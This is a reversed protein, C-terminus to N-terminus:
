GLTQAVLQACNADTAAKNRGGIARGVAKFINGVSRTGEPVIIDPERINGRLLVSGPLQLANKSKAAGTLSITFAEAPFGIHGTGRTQSISTDVLLLDVDGRGRKLALRIIGCRLEERGDKNAFLVKGVDFGILGALRTPMSGGRTVAGMTGNANGVAERITDGVGTLRVRADVRGDVDSDSGGGALASISSGRLDLALKVTPKPQDERQNVIASGTIVGQNLGIRLASVTLLRNDLNLTASMTKISSPRRGSLVRDVRIAIRGDTKRIKRINVRTNPVIRPGIARELAVGRANGADDALDEFNLTLFRVDGDLKTRGDTKLATLKGILHSEGVTGRLDAVSWTKDRHRVKANLTLPQTGFLGAEIVRDILKLDNARASVKFTMDDTRMPGAMTGLAHMALAPGELQADFPWAKGAIMPAGRLRVNVAAGDVTGTGAGTLGTRPDVALSIKFARKQFADRYDIIVDDIRTASIGSTNGDDDKRDQRHRDWNVRRDADRVLNLRIGKASVLHPAGKRLLMNFLNIRLRVQEVSALNGPGAWDPQPIQLGRVQIIPSFSFASEREMAAITVPSGVRDSLRREAGSKLWSVPFSGALIILGALLLAVVLLAIRAGRPIMGITSSTLRM